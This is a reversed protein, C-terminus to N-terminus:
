PEEVAADAAAERERLGHKWLLRYFYIRDVGAARAAASVKNNHKQLLQALYKKELENVWGERAVKLPVTIDIRSSTEGYSGVDNQDISTFPAREGRMVVCREVYNRLERVNGRWSHRGLEALFAQTRLREGEPTDSVGMSLLIHEVLMPLDDLRERLPPLRVVLVALRYYLDSRFRRATVEARLNRNTAAVVRVDVPIYNNSGVRKIEKRELARLLKPQLDLTLEGIEDLFITGGGAAEFAGKRMSIAGTFSGREHGFLESELLQPPLAGCDVVIFPGKTRHSERHIAEASAEKGTGTDGEILVTADSAAAQELTAFVARMAASQGVLKGFKQRDSLPISLEGTTLEFRLRTSGLTLIANPDLHAQVVPVGNVLTGNRSGLDRVAPREGLSVECHFRSVSRDSLVVDASPQSGIVMQHRSPIFTKGADPGSIVVLRCRPMQAWQRGEVTTVRPGTDRAVDGPFTPMVATIKTDEREMEEAVNAGEDEEFPQQVLPDRGKVRVDM